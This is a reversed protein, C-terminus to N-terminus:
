AVFMQCLECLPHEAEEPRNGFLTVCTRCIFQSCEVCSYGCEECLDFTCNVCNGRILTPRQCCASIRRELTPNAVDPNLDRLIINGDGILQYQDCLNLTPAAPVPVASDESESRNDMNAAAKFLMKTTKEHVAKMKDPDRSNNIKENVWVKTQTVNNNSEDDESRMRKLSNSSSEM